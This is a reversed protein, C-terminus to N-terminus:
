MDIQKAIDLLTKRILRHATAVSLGLYDAVEELTYGGLRYMEVAIRAHNPLQGLLLAVRKLDDGYLLTEEPSPAAPAFSAPADSLYSTETKRRRLLDLARNRVIRYLYSLPQEIEGASSTGPTFKLFADQVIDEAQDRSGVIPTAYDVLKARHAVYLSIKLRDSAMARLLGCDSNADFVTSRSGRKDAM